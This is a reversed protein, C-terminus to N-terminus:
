LYLICVKALNDKCIVKRAMKEIEFICCFSWFSWKEGQPWYVGFCCLACAQQNTHFVLWLLLDTYLVALVGVIRDVCLLASDCLWMNRLLFLSIKHGGLTCNDTSSWLSAFTSPCCPTTITRMTTTWIKDKTEIKFERWKNSIHSLSSLELNPKSPITVLKSAHSTGFPFAPICNTFTIPLRYPALYINEFIIIVFAGKPRM